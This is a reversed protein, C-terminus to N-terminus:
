KSTRKDYVAEEIEKCILELKQVAVESKSYMEFINKFSITREEIGVFDPIINGLLADGYEKRFLKVYEDKNQRVDATLEMLENKAKERDEDNLLGLGRSEIELYKRGLLIYHQYDYDDPSSRYDDIESILDNIEELAGERPDDPMSDGFVTLTTWYM